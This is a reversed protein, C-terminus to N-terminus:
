FLDEKSIAQGAALTPAYYDAFHALGADTIGDKRTLTNATEANAVAENEAETKFLDDTKM